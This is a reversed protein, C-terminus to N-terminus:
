APRDFDSTKLDRALWYGASFRAGAAQEAAIPPGSEDDAGPERVFASCGNEPASRVKPGGALSCAAATGGYVMGVFQACHWCPGAGPTRIGHPPFFQM